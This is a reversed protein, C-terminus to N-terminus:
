EPKPIEDFLGGVKRRFHLLCSVLKDVLRLRYDDLRQFVLVLTPFVSRSAVNEIAEAFMASPTCAVVPRRVDSNFVGSAPPNLNTPRVSARELVVILGHSVHDIM